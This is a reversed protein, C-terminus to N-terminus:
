MKKAKTYKAKLAPIGMGKLKTKDEGTLKVIMSILATKKQDETAEKPAQVAKAKKPKVKLLKEEVEDYGLRNLDRVNEDTLEVIQDIQERKRADAERKFGVQHSSLSKPAIDIFSLCRNVVYELNDVDMMSYLVEKDGADDHCVIKLMIENFQGGERQFKESHVMAVLEMHSNDNTYPAENNQSHLKGFGDRRKFTRCAGRLWTLAEFNAIDVGLLESRLIPRWTKDNSAKYMECWFEPLLEYKFFPVELESLMTGSDQETLTKLSLLEKGFKTLKKYFSM